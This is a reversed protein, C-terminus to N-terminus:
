FPATVAQPATHPVSYTQSPPAASEVAQAAQSQQTPASLPVTQAQPVAVPERANNPMTMEVFGQEVSQPLAVTQVPAPEQYEAEIADAQRESKAYLAMTLGSAFDKPIPKVANNRMKRLIMRERSGERWAPSIYPQLEPIDLIEDVDKGNMLAKLQAKRADIEEKQKVTAKYRNEAIGFTENMMNNSIHATLNARVDSREGIFYRVSGDRFRIPYVVRAYRGKGGPTWHPPEVDIGRYVPYSFDDDERVAWFPYVMEVDHGFHRLLADNGDGEVGMEVSVGWSGDPLKKKRTQFYCERPMAFANLRLVAVQQLIEMLEVRAFSGVNELGAARAAEDMMVLANSMCQKQYSDIQASHGSLQREVLPIYIDAAKQSSSRFDQAAPQRTTEAM